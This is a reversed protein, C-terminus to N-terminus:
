TLCIIIPFFILALTGEYVQVIGSELGALITVPSFLLTALQPLIDMEM